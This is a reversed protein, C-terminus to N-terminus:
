PKVRVDKAVRRDEPKSYRVSVHQGTSLFETIASPKGDARLKNMKHTAGSAYVTTGTNVEFDLDKGEKDTLVFGSATVSKLVGEAKHFAGNVDDKVERKTAKAGQKADEGVDKGLQKADEGTKSADQKEKDQAAAPVTAALALAFFAYSLRRTM